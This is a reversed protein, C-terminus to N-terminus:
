DDADTPMVALRDLENAIEALEAAIADIGTAEATLAKALGGLKNDRLTDAKEHKKDSLVAVHEAVARLRDTLESFTM